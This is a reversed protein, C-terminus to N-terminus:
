YNWQGLGATNTVDAIKKPQGGALSVVYDATEGLKAIRFVLMQNDLWHVPQSLGSLSQLVEDKGNGTDTVLLVGKGDRSDVWIAHKNDPSDQYYRGNRDNAQVGAPKASSDGFNYTYSTLGTLLTLTDYSDRSTGWVDNKDLIVQKNTNDPNIRVFQSVGGQYNNSASFYLSGHVSVIDHLYNAAALQLRSNTQYDYSILQYRGPNAASTGAKIKVYVLRGGIWDVIQIQESHELSLTTGREMNVLTLSQLVFGDQNKLTDRKSVIAAENGDPSQVVTINSDESGTGALIVKKNNGDIDSKYLDYNGSQKSIYAIHRDPVLQITRNQGQGPVLTIKESRYGDASITAERADTENHELTLTVLGKADAQANSQNSEIVAGDVPKGTLYDVVTVRFQIGVAQLSFDGLPNSGLGLTVTQNVQSFGPQSISLPQAGLELKSLKAVGDEDTKGKQNGIEVTVNKLPLQTANDVVIVSAASRVGVTNLAYYRTPPFGLGGALLAFLVLITGYRVLKNHWWGKFFGAISRHPKPKAAAAKQADSAATDADRRALLEDSEKAVIDDIMPDFTPDDDPNDLPSLSTEELSPAPKGATEETAKAPEAAPKDKEGALEEIGPINMEKVEPATGTDSKKKSKPPKPEPKPEVQPKEAHIPEVSMMEDVRRELEPDVDSVKSTPQEKPKKAPM